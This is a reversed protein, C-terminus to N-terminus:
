SDNFYLSLYNPKSSADLVFYIVPKCLTIIRQFNSKQKAFFRHVWIKEIKDGSPPWDLSFFCRRGMLYSQSQQAGVWYKLAKLSMSFVKIIVLM